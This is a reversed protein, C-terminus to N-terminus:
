KDREKLKRKLAKIEGELLSIYEKLFEPDNKLKEMNSDFWSKKKMGKIVVM